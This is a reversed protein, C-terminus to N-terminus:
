ARPTYLAPQCLPCVSLLLSSSLTCTTSVRHCLLELYSILNFWNDIHCLIRLERGERVPM